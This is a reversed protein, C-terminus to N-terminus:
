LYKYFREHVESYCIGTVAELSLISMDCGKAPFKRFKHKIHQENWYYGSEFDILDDINSFVWLPLM